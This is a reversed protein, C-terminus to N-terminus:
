FGVMITLFGEFRVPIVWVCVMFNFFMLFMAESQHSLLRRGGGRFFCDRPAGAYFAKIESFTYVGGDAPDIRRQAPRPRPRKQCCVQIIKEM